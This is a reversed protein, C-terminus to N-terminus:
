WCLVVDVAVRMLSLLLCCSAVFSLGAFVCCIGSSLCGCRAGGLVVFLM